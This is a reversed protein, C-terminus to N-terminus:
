GAFGNREFLEAHLLRPHFVLQVVVRQRQLHGLLVLLRSLIASVRRSASFSLGNSPFAGGFSESSKSQDRKPLM